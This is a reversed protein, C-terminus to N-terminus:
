VGAVEEECKKKQNREMTTIVKHMPGAGLGIALGTILFGFYPVKIDGLWPVEIKDLLYHTDLSRWIALLDVKAWLAFAIGATCAVVRAGTRVAAARVLDGSIMPVTGSYGGRENLLKDNFLALLRAMVEPKVYEFIRRNRELRDRIAHARATWFNCWDFHCDCLDYIAKLIEIVREVVFALALVLTFQVTVYTLVEAPGNM